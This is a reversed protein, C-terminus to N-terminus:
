QTTARGALVYAGDRYELIGLERLLLLANDLLERDSEDALGYGIAANASFRYTRSVMGPEQMSECFRKLRAAMRKIRRNELRQRLSFMWVGAAGIIAGVATGVITTLMGWAFGHSDTTM